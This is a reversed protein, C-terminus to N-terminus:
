SYTTPVGVISASLDRPKLHETVFWYADASLKPCTALNEASMRVVVEKEYGYDIKDYNEYDIFYGSTLYYSRTLVDGNSNEASVLFETSGDLGSVTTYYM